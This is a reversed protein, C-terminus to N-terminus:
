NKLVKLAEPRIVEEWRRYTVASPHLGDKAVLEPKDKMEKSAEFLDAVHLNRKKAVEFIIENFGSLGESIDRGKSYKPGEPTVSFDPITILLVKQPNDLKNQVHDLIQNLNETFTEASYEQVWDNVGILLTVFDADSTDFVPLEKEILDKTTWGTVSPNAILKINMGSSNLNEVMVNPWAEEPKAGEGITYSDGLAVYRIMQASSILSSFLAFALLLIFKVAM